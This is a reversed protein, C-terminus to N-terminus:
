KIVKKPKILEKQSEKNLIYNRFLVNFDIDNELFILEFITQIEPKQTRSIAELLSYTKSFPFIKSIDDHKDALLLLPICDIVRKASNNLTTSYNNHINQCSDAIYTGVLSLFNQLIIYEKQNKFNSPQNYENLVFILNNANNEFNLPIINNIAQKPEIKLLSFEDQIVLIFESSTGDKSNFLTLINNINWLRLNRNSIIEITNSDEIFSKIGNHLSHIVHATQDIAKKYKVLLKQSDYQNETICNLFINKIDDEITILDKFITEKMIHPILIIM